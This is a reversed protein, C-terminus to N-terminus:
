ETGVEYPWTFSDLESKVKEAIAVFDFAKEDTRSIASLIEGKRTIGLQHSRLLLVLNDLRGGCVDKALVWIDSGYIGFTDLDFVNALGGLAAEPDIEKGYKLLNICVMLAGPNGESMKILIDKPTDTLELRTNM